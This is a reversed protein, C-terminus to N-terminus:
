KDGEWANSKTIVWVTGKEKKERIELECGLIELYRLLTEVTMSTDKNLRNSVAQASVGLIRSIDNYRMKRSKLLAKITTQLDM